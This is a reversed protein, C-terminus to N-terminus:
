GRRRRTPRPSTSSRSCRTTWTRRASRRRRRCSTGGIRRCPLIASLTVARPHIEFGLKMLVNANESNSPCFIAGASHPACRDTSVHLGALKNQIDDSAFHGEKIMDQGHQTLEKIRPEHGELEALMAQHKKQLNQVGILDRGSVRSAQTAEQECQNRTRSPVDHAVHTFQRVCTAM